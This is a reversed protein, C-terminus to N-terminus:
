CWAPRWAPGAGRALHGAPITVWPEKSHGAEENISLPTRMAWAKPFRTNGVVLVQRRPELVQAALGTHGM